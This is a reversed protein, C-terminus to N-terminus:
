ERMRFAKDLNNLEFCSYIEAQIEGIGKEIYQKVENNEINMKKYADFILDYIEQKSKNKFKKYIGQVDNLNLELELYDRDALICGIAQVLVISFINIILDKYGKSYKCLLNEIKENSFMKCFENEYYLSQLYNEIFEIGELRGVLNNYLPYDATIKIDMANYDPDYIKFFGKIGKIITSNYTENNTQLLNNLVKKYLLKAVSIKIDILRRGKNYLDIINEDINSKQNSKLYLNITYINSEMIMKATDAKISSSEFGNYKEIKLKLLELYQVQLKSFQEQNFIEIDSNM